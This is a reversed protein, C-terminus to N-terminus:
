LHFFTELGFDPEGTIRTGELSLWNGGGDERTSRGRWFKGRGRAGIEGMLVRSQDGGRQVM